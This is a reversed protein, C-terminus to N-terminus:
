EGEYTYINIQISASPSGIEGEEEEEGEEQEQETLGEKEPLTLPEPVVINVVEVAATRFDDSIAIGNVFDIIDAVAGHVEMDFSTVTFEVGEVNEIGPESTNLTMMELDRDHAMQFLLEDYRISDMTVPFKLTGRRLSAKAQELQLQLQNLQSELDAKESELEPLLEQASALQTNLQEHEDQREQYMRYLFIAAIAFIGIALVLQAVKSFKM